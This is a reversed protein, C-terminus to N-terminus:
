SYGPVTQDVACDFWNYMEPVPQELTILGYPTFANIPVPQDLLQYM